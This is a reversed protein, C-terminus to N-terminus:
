GYSLLRVADRLEEDSIHTYVRETITRPTHGLLIQLILLDCKASRLRTTFTHRCDHPRRGYRDRLHKAYGNHSFTRPSSKWASIVPVLEDHIPIHRISRKNKAKRIYIMRDKLDIDDPALDRLEKTRMGTYLLILSVQAWWESRCDLLDAIQDDTFVDREISADVTNNHLYLAPNKDVLEQQLAYEYVKRCVTKIERQQTTQCADICKQMMAARISRIPLDAIPELYRYASRYNHARAPSFDKSAQEYCQGFTIRTGDLAFPDENYDALAQMAEKRTAYYGLFQRLQKATHLDQDITFGTTVRVAWPRRRNGPLKYVSGYGNPNKM